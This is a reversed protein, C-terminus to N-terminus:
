KGQNPISLPFSYGTKRSISEKETVEECFAFFNQHFYKSDIAEGLYLEGNYVPM